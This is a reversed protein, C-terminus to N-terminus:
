WRIRFNSIRCYAVAADDYPKSRPWIACERDSNEADRVRGLLEDPGQEDLLKFVTPWDALEFDVLRRAGDTLVAAQQVQGPRHAGVIAHSAAIPDTSAVWYGDLTNRATRREEIMERRLGARQASSAHAALVSREQNAATNTVRDDQVVEIGNRTTDFVISADSLVLHQVFGLTRLIAVTAAPTGPHGLDCTDAHLATVEAIADALADDLPIVPMGTVKVLLRTGLQQVYWPTGHICGTDMGKPVSLGDLVVVAENTAAVFDENPGGRPAPRTAFTVDM